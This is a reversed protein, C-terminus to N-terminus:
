PEGLEDLTVPPPLLRENVPRGVSLPRVADPDLSYSDAASMDVQYGMDALAGVTLRSLRADSTLYGTMLENHFTEFDWHSCATGPVANNEVPVPGSGGLRSYQENASDGTFEVTFSEMCEARDYDLLDRRQWGAQSLDLVHGLEHLVVTYMDGTSSLNDVDSSDILVMGVLPFGDARLICAGAMGVVGGPGDLDEIGAFLLLDDIVGGYSYGNCYREVHNAEVFTDHLDGVVVQSWRQAAREFEAQQEPSMEGTYRVRMEFGVGSSPMPLVPQSGCGVLLLLLTLLSLHRLRAASPSIPRQPSLINM